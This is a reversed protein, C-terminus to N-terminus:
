TESEVNNHTCGQCHTSTHTKLAEGNVEALLHIECLSTRGLHTGGGQVQVTDLRCHGWGIADVEVALSSRCECGAPGLLKGMFDQFHRFRQTEAEARERIRTIAQEKKDPDDDPTTQTQLRKIERQAAQQIEAAADDNVVICVLFQRM